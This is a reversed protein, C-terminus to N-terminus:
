KEITDIYVQRQLMRDPRNWLQVAGYIALIIIAWIFLSLVIIAIGQRIDVMSLNFM